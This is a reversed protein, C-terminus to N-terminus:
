RAPDQIVWTEENCEGPSARRAVETGDRTRAVLEGYACEIGSDQKTHPPIQLRFVEETVPSDTGHPHIVGYIFLEIGTRNDIPLGPEDGPDGYRSLGWTLWALGLFVLGVVSLIVVRWGLPLRQGRPQRQPPMRNTSM